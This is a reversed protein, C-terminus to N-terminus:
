QKGWIFHITLIVRLLIVWTHQFEIEKDSPQNKAYEWSRASKCLVPLWPFTRMSLQTIYIYMHVTIIFHPILPIIFLFSFQERDKGLMSVASYLPFSFQITTKQERIAVKNEKLKLFNHICYHLIVLFYYSFLFSWKWEQGGVEEAITVM